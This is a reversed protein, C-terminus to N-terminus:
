QTLDYITSAIKSQDEFIAFVDKTDPMTANNVAIMFELLHGNKGEIYGALTQTTLFFRNTAANFSVGTGTKAHIKGKGATTNGFDALSGDVGQVPLADFYKKFIEPPQKRMHTLLHLEAQPTLRNEDGGAADVFVFTDESIKANRTVYHGLLLMGEDFRTKGKQSALLLPILDAGINHSVKLILKVYESLPPSTWTAIPQLESLSSKQFPIQDHRISIGQEQLAQIFVAKAFEKPNKVTFTRLVDREGEPITGRVRIQKEIADASVSISLPEGKVVTNVENKISYEGRVQPRWTIAAPQGVISPNIVIDILNENIMVPSLVVGRRETTEFLTDDIIVDGSVERIGADYIQRALDLLAYEPDEKTIQAGPILNALIHDLKTYSLTDEGGQRGGFTLDGQGVLVLNGNLVDEEITGVAYVPTKFRYDIGYANIWAATSFLKTTSGPLFMKDSNLDILTKDTETDRVYIGWTSHKYKNQQMIKEINEPLAANLVLTASLALLTLLCRM